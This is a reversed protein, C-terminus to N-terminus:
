IFSPERDPKAYSLRGLKQPLHYGDLASGTVTGAAELDIYGDAGLLQDDIYVDLVEGLVLVTGNRPIDILEALQMHMSIAAEAVFPAKCDNRLESTLGVADFESVTRPYRASTQHAAKYFSEAVHNITYHGLERINSLTHREVSDPRSVYGLLPPNSGFHTLTSIISVNEQGQANTTGVLNLSKLGPLSNVFNVRYRKDMEDINKRNIHTQTM